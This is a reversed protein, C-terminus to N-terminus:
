GKQGAFNVEVYTGDSYSFLQVLNEANEILQININALDFSM